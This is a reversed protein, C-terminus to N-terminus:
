ECHESVPPTRQCAMSDTVGCSLFACANVIAAQRAEEVTAGGVRRCMHRGRYEICVECTAAELLLSQFVVYAFVAGLILAGAVGARTLGSQPRRGAVGKRMRGPMRAPSPTPRRGTRRRMM